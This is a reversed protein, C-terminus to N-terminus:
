FNKLSYFCLLWPNIKIISVVFWFFVELMENGSFCYFCLTYANRSKKLCNKSLKWPKVKLSTSAYVSSCLARHVTPCPSSGICPTVQRRPCGRPSPPPQKRAGKPLSPAPDHYIKFHDPTSTDRWCSPQFTLCLFKTSFSCPTTHSHKSHLFKVSNISILEIECSFHVFLYFNRHELYPRLELLVPPEECDKM